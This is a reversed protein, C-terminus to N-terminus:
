YHTYFSRNKRAPKYGRLGQEGSLMNGLLTGFAERDRAGAQLQPGYISTLAGVGSQLGSRRLQAKKAELQAMAPALRSGAERFAIRRTARPSYAGASGGAFGGAGVASRFSDGINRRAGLEEASSMGSSMLRPLADQLMGSAFGETQPGYQGIASQFQEALPGLTSLGGLQKRMRGEELNGQVGYQATRMPSSGFNFGM